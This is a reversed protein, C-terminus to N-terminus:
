SVVCLYYFVRAVMKQLDVNSIKGAEQKMEEVKYFAVNLYSQLYRSMVTLRLLITGLVLYIRMTEFQTSTM